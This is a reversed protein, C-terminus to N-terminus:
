RTTLREDSRGTIRPGLCAQAHARTAEHVHQHFRRRMQLLNDNSYRLSRQLNRASMKARRDPDAVVDHIKAALARADGPPVLDDAPLLEPIGGVASGICPLARAMAEIMARPLGEARSPLVFVDGRDLEERVARGAPLRGRFDVRTQIGAASARDVLFQRAQGDGILVLRIDLGQGVCRAVADLLVDQAKYLHEMAGVSVLTARGPTGRPRPQTAIAESTLEVDSVGFTPSGPRAPYRAQLSHDTVYAAACAGLCHLRLRQRLWRRLLPRVPHRIGGRSYVDWPDGLVEVGYPYRRRRLVAFLEDAVISAVRLIVADGAVFSQSVADRVQRRKLLYQWPGVYYPVPCCNVNGGTARVWGPLPEPIDAVRAVFRVGDFVDVYRSWFAHGFGASSWVIGDPTRLFRHELVVVVNV